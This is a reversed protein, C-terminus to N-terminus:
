IIKTFIIADGGNGAGPIVIRPYKPNIRIKYNKKTGDQKTIEIKKYGEKESIIMGYIHPYQYSRKHISSEYIPIGIYKNSISELLTIYIDKLDLSSIIDYVNLYEPSVIAIYDRFSTISPETTKLFNDYNARENDDKLIEYATTAKKFLEESDKSNNKDPHHKVAIKYYAKRIEATTAEPSVDLINYLNYEM